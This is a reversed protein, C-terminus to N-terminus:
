EQPKLIESPLPPPKVGTLCPNGYVHLYDDIYKKMPTHVYGPQRRIWDCPDCIYHGERNDCEMCKARERVRANNKVVVCNCHSCTMTDQEFVKGEGCQAPDYGAWRAVDEPLGPSARHDVMLYGMQKPM